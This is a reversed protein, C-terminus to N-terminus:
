IWRYATARASPIRLEKRAIIECDFIMFIDVDVVFFLPANSALLGPKRYVIMVATKVTNATEPTLKGVGASTSAPSIVVVREV